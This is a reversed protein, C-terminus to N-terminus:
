TPRVGGVGPWRAVCRRRGDLRVVWEVQPDGLGEPELSRQKEKKGNSPSAPQVLPDQYLAPPLSHLSARVLREIEQPPLWGGGARRQRSEAQLRWRRPLDWDQPQLVWLGDCARWLPVYALLERNWRPLWDREAATLLELGRAKALRGSLEEARLPRCGMLWGELLVADAVSESWGCRDGQGGALTKDFRPLRLVGTQRWVELQRVLLEVDHSGPPVRRVGFPNGELRHSREPWPLYVDDISAVALRLGVQPALGLLTRALSSKGSGVPGNLALVTGESGAVALRNLLPLAVGRLLSPHLPPPGEVGAPPGSRFRRDPEM